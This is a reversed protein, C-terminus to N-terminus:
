RFLTSCRRVDGNFRGSYEDAKSPEAVALLGSAMPSRIAPSSVCLANDTRLWEGKDYDAVFLVAGKRTWGGQEVFKRMCGIDDFKYPNGDNDLMEAAFRKESIAMRCQACMDGTEIAIARLPGDVCASTLTLVGALTLRTWM